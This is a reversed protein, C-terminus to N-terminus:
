RPPPTPAPVHDRANRTLLSDIDAFSTTVTFTFTVKNGNGAVDTIGLTWTHKGLSLKSPDLPLPYVWTGDLWADRM